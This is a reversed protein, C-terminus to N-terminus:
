ATGPGDPLKNEILRVYTEAGPGPRMLGFQTGTQHTGDELLDSRGNSQLSPDSLVTGRWDIVFTRPRELSLERSFRNYENIRDDKDSQFNGARVVLMLYVITEAPLKDLSARLRAKTWDPDTSNNTGLAQIFFKPPPNNALYVELRNPLARVPRGGEGDVTWSPHRANLIPEVRNTTSDGIMLVGVPDGAATATPAPAAATLGSAVILAAAVGALLKKM